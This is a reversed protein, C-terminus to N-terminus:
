VKYSSKPADLLFGRILKEFQVAYLNFEGASELSKMEATLHTLNEILRDAKEVSFLNPNNPTLEPIADFLIGMVIPSVECPDTDIRVVTKGVLMFSDGEIPTCYFNFRRKSYPYTSCVETKVADFNPYMSEIEDQSLREAPDFRGASATAITPM